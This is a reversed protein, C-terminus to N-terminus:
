LIGRLHIGVAIAPHTAPTAKIEDYALGLETFASNGFYKGINDIANESKKIEFGKTGSAVLTNKLVKLGEDLLYVSVQTLVFSSENKWNTRSLKTRTRRYSASNESENKIKVLQGHRVGSGSVVQATLIIYRKLALDVKIESGKKFRIIQYGGKANLAREIEDLLPNLINLKDSSGDCFEDAIVIYNIKNSFLNNNQPTNKPNYTAVKACGSIFIIILFINIVSTKM